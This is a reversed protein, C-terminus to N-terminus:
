APLRVWNPLGIAPKWSVWRLSASSATDSCCICSVARRRPSSFSAPRIVGCWILKPLNALTRAASSIQRSARM